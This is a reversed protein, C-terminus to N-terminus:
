ETADKKIARVTQLYSWVLVLNSGIWALPNAFCAGLFGFMPVIAIGVVVRSILEAIGAMTPAMSKGFGQLTYRIVFLMALLFYSSSVIIFYQHALNTIHQESNGIFLNVLFRSNLVILVGVIVSYSISTTLCQRIGKLIRNYYKAGYNQATFTAMTIGMSMMPQVAIQDVKGAATYAAISQPGLENLSVQLIISGIAIISAQFGMPLGIKIQEQIEAMSTHMDSWSLSLYRVSRKIYWWCLLCSFLQAAVTAVGAGAIGMHFQIILLLDLVVNIVCAIALFVLPARSNGLSRLMNSFLNFFMTAGLGAFIITLFTEAGSLLSSPTQMLVLLPRTLAVSLITLIVTTILCIIISTAFSEKVKRVDGAGFHQATIISLGTTMGQAFGIILFTLGGTAGVAALAQVGVVRGVILTDSITYIQQFINGLLLPISFLIIGKIPSGKTLISDM